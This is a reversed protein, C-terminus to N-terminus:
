HHKSALQKKMKKLFESSSDSQVQIERLQASKKKPLIIDIVGNEANASIQPLDVHHPLSFSADVSRRSRIHKDEKSEKVSVFLTDEQVKLQLQKPDIGPADLSLQYFAETEHVSYPASQLFTKSEPLDSKMFFPYLAEEFGGRWSHDKKILSDRM